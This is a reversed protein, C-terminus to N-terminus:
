KWVPQGDDERGAKRGRSYIWITIIKELVDGLIRPRRELYGLNRGGTGHCTLWQPMAACLPRRM